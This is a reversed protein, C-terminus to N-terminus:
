FHAFNIFLKVQDIFTNADDEFVWGRDKSFTIKLMFLVGSILFIRQKGRVFLLFFGENEVSVM